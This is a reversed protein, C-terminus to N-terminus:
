GGNRRLGHAFSFYPLALKSRTTRRKRPPDRRAPASDADGHAEAAIGAFVGALAAETATGAIFAATSAIAESSSGANGFEEEFARVRAEIRASIEADIGAGALATFEDAGPAGRGPPNAVHAVSGVVGEGFAPHAVGVPTAALLGVVALLGTTSLAVLTNQLKRNM